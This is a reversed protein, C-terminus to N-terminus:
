LAMNQLLPWTSRGAPTVPLRVNGYAPSPERESVTVLLCTPREPIIGFYVSLYAGLHFPQYNHICGKDLPTVKAIITGWITGFPLIGGRLEDVVVVVM